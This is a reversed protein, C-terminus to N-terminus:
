KAAKFESLEWLQAEKAGEFLAIKVLGIKPAMYFDIHGQDGVDLRTKLADKYTGAPVKVELTGEHVMEGIASQWKDGKKSGEKVVGFSIEEEDSKADATLIGDVVSWSVISAKRLKGDTEFEKWDLKQKGADEGLAKAVIKYEVGNEVHKYTWTTDKKFKYLDDIPAAQMALCATLLAALKM